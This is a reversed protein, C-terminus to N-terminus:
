ELYHIYQEFNDSYLITDDELYWVAELNEYNNVFTLAENVPLLFLATSLLDAMSSDPYIITISKCYGGPYYTNPDIIHHYIDETVLEKFYRQNIGSTVLAMNEPLKIFHFYLLELQEEQTLDSYDIFDTNPRTLAIYYYGDDNNPNIGHAYVNSNGVNLLYKINLMDLYESLVKTVYGKGYGGLDLSMNPKDFRITMNQSDLIIDDPDINYEIDEDIEPAPCYSVGFELFDNCEDSDRADHWIELIPGLAIDFLPFDGRIIIDDNDLAFKIADFLIEDIVLAETSHNITYVNNIDDYENYKDFYEHYTKLTDEFYEFIEIIDYEAETDYYIKLSVITDFYSSVRKECLYVGDTSGAVCYQDNPNTVVEDCSSLTIAIFIILFSIIIKKMSKGKKICLCQTYYHYTPPIILFSSKIM